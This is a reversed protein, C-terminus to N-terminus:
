KVNDHYCLRSRLLGHDQLNPLSFCLFKCAHSKLAHNCRVLATAWATAWVNIENNSMSSPRKQGVCALQFHVKQVRRGHNQVFEQVLRRKLTFVSPLVLLRYQLLVFKIADLCILLSFPENTTWKSLFTATKVASKLFVRVRFNLPWSVNANKAATLLRLPGRLFWNTNQSQHIEILRHVSGGGRLFFRLLPGKELKEQPSPPRYM